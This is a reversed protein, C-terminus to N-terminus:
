IKVYFLIFILHIKIGLKKIYLGEVTIVTSLRKNANVKHITIFSLRLKCGECVGKDVKALANGKQNKISHYKDLWEKDVNKELSLIDEELRKINTNAYDVDKSRREKLSTFENKLKELEM